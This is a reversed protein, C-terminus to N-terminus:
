NTLTVIWGGQNQNTHIWVIVDAPVAINTFALPPLIITFNTKINVPGSERVDTYISLLVGITPVVVLLFFYYFALNRESM